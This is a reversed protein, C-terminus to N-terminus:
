NEREQREKEKDERERKQINEVFDLLERGQLGIDKGLKLLDKVDSMKISRCQSKVM